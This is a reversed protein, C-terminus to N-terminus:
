CFSDKTKGLWPRIFSYVFAKKTNKETMVTEVDEPRSVFLDFTNFLKHLVM